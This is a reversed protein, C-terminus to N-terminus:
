LLICKFLQHTQNTILFFNIVICPLMFTTEMCGKGEGECEEEEDDEEEEEENNNNNNNNNNNYNNNYSTEL